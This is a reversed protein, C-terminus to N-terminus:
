RLPPIKCYTKRPINFVSLYVEEREDNRTAELAPHRDIAFKIEINGVEMNAMYLIM